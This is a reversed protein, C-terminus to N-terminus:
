NKSRSTCSDVLYAIHQWGFGTIDSLGIECTGSSGFGKQINKNQYFKGFDELASRNLEPTFFGKNGAFGCCGTDKHIFIGGKTCAKALSLMIKEQGAKKGACMTYLGINESIPQIKLHPILYKQIYLNLDYIQLETKELMQIFHTSCATHDLVIPIRGNKSLTKLLLYNKHTNEKLLKEYNIFAKGCCMSHIKDPYILQTNTKQCLSEFVEQISRSDPMNKAPSFSRNICTTFYIVESHHNSLPKNQLKYINKRPLNKSLKPIIHSIKRLSNNCALFTDQGLLNSGLDAIKLGFRMLSTTTNMHNLIKRAFKEQIGQANQARTTLAIKGAPIELPCLTACMGCVACTEDSLYPYGKKLEELLLSDQQSNSHLNEQLRQIERHITIRQRPTLTLNKSPCIKECFGCEMCADLYDQIQTTSKLNKTHISPDNSIIVDPNILNYPDFIQKIKQNIEYAKKGWELEVFPAVMRGTGHEAKISGGFAAVNQAMEEILKEFNECEKKDSLIPTIIFHINGSLAHGFIIGNESFGYKEFLDGIMSVGKQLDEIRFCIDETIVCSGKRRSSAAIPLLGKRIKWWHNYIDEQASIQPPLVTPIDQINQSIIELNDQLIKKDNSQTQLLICANGPKIQRIIEPVDKSKQVSKLSAYDMIEAAAIISEMNALIKVVRTADAINKYFLLACAKHSFDEICEYECASIFGLTGESGIFIHNIIDIPDCFDILANISYGTTNKIRYKKTILSKLEDDQLIHSRLELLANILHSHTHLFSQINTKDSTDLLTGDGLIVRISRITNYSNQKVGCCMGSSNNAVIGGIMATSITAPDPGIKKNYPKLADNASSGIVGCSLRISQKDESINIDQWQASAIVLVNQTCAQGSLSSGAARFTIPINYTRSLSYIKIIEEENHAKIVLKPIYRYCSADTGYAFRRLYDDYIRDGLFEQAKQKFLQYDQM